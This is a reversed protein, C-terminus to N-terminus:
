QEVLWRIRSGGRAGLLAELQLQWAQAAVDFEWPPNVVLLGSGNLAAANDAEHLCFEAALTPRVIGRMVRAVWLESDRLKKIPYWVAFVGTEFRALGEALADAVQEEEERTEY